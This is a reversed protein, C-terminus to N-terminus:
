GHHKKHPKPQKVNFGLKSVPSRLGAGDVAQVSFTHHGAGLKPTRFPSTCPRFRKGDVRCEFSVGTTTAGFTFKARKGNAVAKAGKVASLAPPTAPAPAPAPAAPEPAPPTPTPPTPLPQPASGASVVDFGAEGGTSVSALAVGGCAVLLLAAGLILTSALSPRGTKPNRSLVIRGVYTCLKRSALCGM